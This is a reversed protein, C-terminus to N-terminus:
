KEEKEKQMKAKAKMRLLKFRLRTKAVDTRQDYGYVMIKHKRPRNSVAKELETKELSNCYKTFGEFDGNEIFSAAIRNDIEMEGTRDSIKVGRHIMKNKYKVYTYFKM